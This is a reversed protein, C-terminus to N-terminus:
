LIQGGTTPTGNSNGPLSGQGAGFTNLVGNGSVNARVGTASGSYTMGFIICLCPGLISVFATSFAPTGSLTITASNLAVEGGNLFLHNVSSGVISYSGTNRIVGGIDSRLHAEACAGFRMGSGVFVIAGNSARICSQTTTTQMELNNVTVNCPASAFICSSNTTSWVVNAPTVSNGNIIVNGGVPSVTISLVSTYTGDGVQITVTFGALDLTACIVDWAKQITLFAGGSTNALGNNADNGDTRVYYTRNATLVERANIAKWLDASLATIYVAPPSSFNVKSGTSSAVVTTRALTTTGTAYAGFGIEWESMDTSQARYSYVAGNTAGASAPTQYGTVASSVVFDATGGAAPFFGCADLFGTASM